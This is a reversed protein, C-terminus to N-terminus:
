RYVTELRWYILQPGDDSTFKHAADWHGSGFSVSLIVRSARVLSGFDGGIPM